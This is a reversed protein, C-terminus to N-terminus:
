AEGQINWEDFYQFKEPNYYNVLAIIMNVKRVIVLMIENKIYNKLFFHSKGVKSYKVNLSFYRWIKNGEFSDLDDLKM